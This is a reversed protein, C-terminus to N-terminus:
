FMRTYKLPRDAGATDIYLYPGEIRIREARSLAELYRSEQDAAAPQCAKRTVALASLGIRNGSLSLAGSFTNCGAMGSVRGPEPFALTSQLRDLVGRGSLDELLWRTGLLSQATPVSVSGIGDGLGSVAGSPAVGACGSLALSLFLALVPGHTQRM